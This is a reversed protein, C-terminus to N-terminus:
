DGPEFVVSRSVEQGSVEDTVLLTIEVGDEIDEPRLEPIIYEGVTRRDSTYSIGSRTRAATGKNQYPAVQYAISYQTQDNEDYALNYLEIYLGLSTSDSLAAYPYPESLQPTTLDKVHVPRVDSMELQIGEGNLAHLSDLAQVEIKIRAGPLVDSEGKEDDLTWRQEWQLALNYLDSDGPITLVRPPISGRTDTSTLYHKQFLEGDTLQGNRRTVYLSLLYKESPVHGEKYLRRLLRRSPKLANVTATSWYIETRTTGDSNLFRAWRFAVPFDVASGHNNSFSVPVTQERQWENQLDETQATNLVTVAYIDARADLNSPLARYNAVADYQLGYTNHYLALQGYVEEMWQLFVNAFRRSGHLRRPILDMPYGVRYGNKKRQQVFLYHADYGVHRYVWFENQPLRLGQINTMLDPTLLRVKTQHSPEGLRVFIEGRDDFGRVDNENGFAEWASVTRKLHEELRENTVTSPLNDQSRWWRELYSGAGPKLQSFLADSSAEPDLGTRVRDSEPLVVALARLHRSLVVTDEPSLPTNLRSFFLLYAETAAEYQLADLTSFVQHIFRDVEVLSSMSSIIPPSDSRLITENVALHSEISQEQISAIAFHLPFGALISWFLVLAVNRQILAWVWRVGGLLRYSHLLYTLHRQMRSTFCLWLAM